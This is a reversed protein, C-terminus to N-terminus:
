LISRVLVKIREIKNQKKCTLRRNIRIKTQLGAVLRFSFSWLRIFKLQQNNDGRAERESIWSKRKRKVNEWKDITKRVWVNTLDWQM